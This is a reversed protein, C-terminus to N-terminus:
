AKVGKLVRLDVTFNDIYDVCFKHLVEWAKDEFYIEHIVRSNFQIVAKEGKYLTGSFQFNECEDELSRESEKCGLFLLM